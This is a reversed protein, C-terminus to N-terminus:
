WLVFGNELRETADRQLKTVGRGELGGTAPEKAGEYRERAAEACGAVGISAEEDGIGDAKGLETNKRVFM